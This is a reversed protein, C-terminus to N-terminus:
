CPRMQFGAGRMPHEVAPQDAQRVIEVDQDRALDVVAQAHLSDDVFGPLRERGLPQRQPRMRRKESPMPLMAELPLSDKTQARLRRAAPM